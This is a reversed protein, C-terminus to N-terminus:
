KVCKLGVGTENLANTRNRRGGTKNSMNMTNFAYM